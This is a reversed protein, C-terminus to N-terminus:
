CLSFQHLCQYLARGENDRPISEDSASSPSAYLGFRHCAFTQAPLPPLHLAQQHKVGRRLTIHPTFAHSDSQAPWVSLARLNKALNFLAQPPQNFTVCAIKPQEWVEVSSTTLNFAPLSLNSAAAQLAPLKTDPVEGLFALTVHLNQDPVARGEGYLHHNYRVLQERATQNAKEDLGLAFFLRM